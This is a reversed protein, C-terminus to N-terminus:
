FSLTLLRIQTNRLSFRDLNYVFVLNVWLSIDLIERIVYKPFVTQFSFKKASNQRFDKGVTLKGFYGTGFNWKVTLIKRYNYNAGGHLVQPRNKLLFKCIFFSESRLFFYLM